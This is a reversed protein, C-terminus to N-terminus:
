VYKGWSSGYWTEGWVVIWGILLADAINNRIFIVNSITNPTHCWIHLIIKTKLVPIRRILERDFLWGVCMRSYGKRGCRWTQNNRENLQMWASSKKTNSGEEWVKTNERTWTMSKRCGSFYFIALATVAWYWSPVALGESRPSSNVSAIKLNIHYCM